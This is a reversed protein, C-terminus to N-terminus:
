LAFSPGYSFGQFKQTEPFCGALIDAIPTSLGVRDVARRVATLAKGTWGRPSMPLIPSSRMSYNVDERWCEPGIM